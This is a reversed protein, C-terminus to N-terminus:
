ASGALAGDPAGDLPDHNLDGLREPDPVIGQALCRRALVHSRADDFSEVSQLRGARFNWISRGDPASGPRHVSHEPGDTIGAIQLRHGYQDTWFWPVPRYATPRGLLTGAARRAQEKANQVSELRVTGGGLPFRACDGAAVIGAAATRCCEDVVVGDDTALGAATALEDNARGGIGVVVLDAPIAEGDDLRVASARNGVGEIGALGTACRLTVGEGAHLEAVLGACAPSASRALVRDAREIVTVRAGLGRAAAAVELGLYGGGIVVVSAAKRLQRALLCADAATRLTVVNEREGGLSAPLRRARSGLALVLGEYPIETGDGLAVRGRDAHLAIIPAADHLEIGAAEYLARPKLALSAVPTDSVLAKKSLPPRHYPVGPEDGILTIAGSWGLERLAFAATAGALGAGAVIM